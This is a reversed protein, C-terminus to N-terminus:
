KSEDFASLIQNKIEKGISGPMKMNKAFAWKGADEFYMKMRYMSDVMNIKVAGDDLKVVVIEIPYAGAHANGPCSLNERTKDSGEKVISFSKKEVRPSSTGLIALQGEKPVFTFAHTMGWEERESSLGAELTRITENFDAHDLTLIDKIKDDFSGGAIIGMTKGIHGKKRIKGYQKNSIEGQISSEILSRLDRRHQNLIDVYSEDDMLATRGICVPNVISVHVGNEDEFLNIRDTMIFPATYSNAQYLKEAYLSDYLIFTKTRYSCKDGSEQDVAAIFQFSSTEISTALAKAADEFATTSSQIVYEYVGQKKHNDDGASAIAVFLSLAIISIAIIRKRMAKEKYKKTTRKLCSTIKNVFGALFLRKVSEM